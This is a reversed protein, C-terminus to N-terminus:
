DRWLKLDYEPNYPQEKFFNKYLRVNTLNKTYDYINDEIENNELENDIEICFFIEGSYDGLYDTSNLQYKHHLEDRLFDKSIFGAKRSDNETIEGFTKYFYDVIRAKIEYAGFSAKIYDDISPNEIVKQKFILLTIKGERIPEFYKRDIFIEHTTM